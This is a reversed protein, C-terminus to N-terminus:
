FCPDLCFPFTRLKYQHELCENLIYMFMIRMNIHYRYDINKFNDLGYDSIKCLIMLVYVYFNRM